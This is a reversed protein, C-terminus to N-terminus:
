FTFFIGWKAGAIGELKRMMGRGGAGHCGLALTSTPLDTGRGFFGAGLAGIGSGNSFRKNVALHIISILSLDRGRSLGDSRQRSPVGGM